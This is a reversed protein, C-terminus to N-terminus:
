KPVKLDRIIINKKKKIPCPVFAVRACVLARRTVIFTDETVAGPTRRLVARRPRYTDIECRVYGRSLKNKTIEIASQRKEKKKKIINKKKKKKKIIRRRSPGRTHNERRNLLAAAAAAAAPVM